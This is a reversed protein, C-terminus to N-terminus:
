AELLKVLWAKPLTPSVDIKKLSNIDIWSYQLEANTSKHVKVDVKYYLHFRPVGHLVGKNAVHLPIPHVKITEKSIALEEELERILAEIIDEGYDLGGGPLSYFGEKEHNM